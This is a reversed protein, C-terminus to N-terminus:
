DGRLQQMLYKGIINVQYEPYPIIINHNFSWFRLHQNFAKLRVNIFSISTPKPSCVNARFTVPIQWCTMGIADPSGSQRVPYSVLKEDAVDGFSQGYVVRAPVTSTHVWRVKFSNALRDINM